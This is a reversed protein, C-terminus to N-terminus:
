RWTTSSSSSSSSPSTNRREQEAAGRIPMDKKRPPPLDLGVVGMMSEGIPEFLMRLSDNDYYRALEALKSEIKKQEIKLLVYRAILAKVEDAKDEQLPHKSSSIPSSM